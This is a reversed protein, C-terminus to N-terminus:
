MLPLRRTARGGPGKVAFALLRDVSTVSSRRVPQRRFRMWSRPRTPPCTRRARSRARHRGAGASSRRARSPLRSAYGAAALLDAPDRRSGPEGQCRDEFCASVLLDLSARRARVFVPDAGLSEAEAPAVVGLSEAIDDLEVPLRDGLVALHESDPEIEEDEGPVASDLAVVREDDGLHLGQARQKM